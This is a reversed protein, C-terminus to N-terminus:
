AQKIKFKSTAPSPGAETVVEMLRQVDLPKTLYEAAGASRLRQIQGPTADASVVVVPIAKTAPDDKLRALLEEGSVDPLHLDLLILDPLHRRALELGLNGQMAPLLKVNPLRELVQQVLRVNSLNDEVYLVSRQETPGGNGKVDVPEPVSLETEPAEARELEVRLTTGSGLSSEAEITGGMVEVLTKSLALGLGTGEIETRDAGLREFPSFLKALQNESMGIGTDSISIQIREATPLDCDVRVEGGAHNYKVANSFLNLLVQKLRQHDALVHFDNLDAPDGLLSVKSDDALPRILSLAEALVSGLHVPELSVGMTGAEIRSIDLVENILELLHRGGKLIQEVGERQNKELEDLALLQAFGIISNLPTRLEHSMRSLFESKARNAREAEQRAEGALSEIRKRETVDRIAATILTGTETELPSLSIEVPVESGDKRRAYLDMEMGMPRVTPQAAYGARHDEHQARHRSPVLREVPEGILEDRLYGFLREAQANVLIITGEPDIIVM